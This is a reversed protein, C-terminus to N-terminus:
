SLCAADPPSYIAIMFSRVHSLCEFGQLTYVRTKVLRSTYTGTQFRLQRWAMGMAAQNKSLGLNNGGGFSPEEHAVRLTRPSCVHVLLSRASRGIDILM